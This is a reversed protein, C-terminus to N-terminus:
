AEHRKDGAPEVVPIFQRNVAEWLRRALEKRDAAQIPHAGFTLSADFRSLKLLEGLHPLFNMDGWWCLATHAPKEGALTRYSISAYSTPYNARAAPELLSPRFPLVKDGKASTGEAFLVVGLGEDMRKRILGNVRPLDQFNSREVFITDVGRAMRGILPWRNVESKAVFVCNLQAGFAIVDLYSLHNSVLLFPPRPPEGKVEIRMGTIKAVSRAWAGFVLSRWKKGATKFPSLLFKGPAWLSYCIATTLVLAPARVIVRFYRM